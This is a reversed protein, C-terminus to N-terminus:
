KGHLSDLFQMETSAIFEIIAKKTQEDYPELLAYGREMLDLGLGIAAIQDKTYIKPKAEMRRIVDKMILITKSLLTTDSIVSFLVSTEGIFKNLSQKPIAKLCELFQADTLPAKYGKDLAAQLLQAEFGTAATFAELSKLGARIAAPLQAGFQFIAVPLSGLLGWVLQPNHVFNGLEAFAADLKHRQVSEPYVHTLFFDKMEQAVEPELDIGTDEIHAIVDEYRGSILARYKDILHYKLDSQAPSLANKSM